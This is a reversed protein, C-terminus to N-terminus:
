LASRYIEASLRYMVPQQLSSDLYALDGFIQLGHGACYV